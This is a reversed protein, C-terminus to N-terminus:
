YDLDLLCLWTCMEEEADPHWEPYISERLEWAMKKARLEGYKKCSFSRSVTTKQDRWMFVWSNNQLRLHGSKTAVGTKAASIAQRTAASKKEHASRKQNYVISDIALGLAVGAAIVEGLIRYEEAELEKRNACPFKKVVEFTFHEFGFERMAAYLPKDSKKSHNKHVAIRKPVDITSGLYVCSNVDNVYRYILGKQYDGQHKM